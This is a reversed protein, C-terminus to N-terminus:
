ARFVLCHTHLFDKPGGQWAVVIEAEARFVESIVTGFDRVLPTFPRGPLNDAQVVIKSGRKMIRAVEAFIRQIDALYAAYGTRAPDGECLPNLKHRRPMYPPSTMCFDMKPFGLSALKSSDGHRLNTWNDLQGAVWQHRREDREVGFPIRRMEEAVFLTTGLGAFPDFVRDGPRTLKKLFLRVLAEPYKIDNGEFPPAERELAYPLTIFQQDIL